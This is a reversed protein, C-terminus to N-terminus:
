ENTDLPTSLQLELDKVRKANEHNLIALKNDRELNAKTNFFGTEDKAWATVNEGAQALNTIARFFSEAAAFLQAFAKFM